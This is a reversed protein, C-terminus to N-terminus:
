GAGAYSVEKPTNAKRSHFLRNKHYIRCIYFFGRAPIDIM